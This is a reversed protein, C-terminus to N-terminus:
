AWRLSRPICLPKLPLTGHFGMEDGGPKMEPRCGQQDHLWATRDGSAADQLGCGNRQTFRLEGASRGSDLVSIIIHPHQLRPAFEIEREFREPGPSATLEPHLVKLAVPRKHKVDRLSSSPPWVGRGLKLTYRDRMADALSSDAAHTM